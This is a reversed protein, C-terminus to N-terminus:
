LKELFGSDLIFEFLFAASVCNRIPKTILKNETTNKRNAAQFIEAQASEQHTQEHISEIAQFAQPTVLRDTELGPPHRQRACTFRV